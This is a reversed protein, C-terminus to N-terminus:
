YHASRENGGSQVMFRAGHKVLRTLLLFDPNINAARKRVTKTREFASDSSHLVISPGAEAM